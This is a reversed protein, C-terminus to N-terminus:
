LNTGNLQIEKQKRSDNVAPSSFIWTWNDWHRCSKTVRYLLLYGGIILSSCLLAKSYCKHWAQLKFDLKKLHCCDHPFLLTSKLPLTLYEPCFFVKFLKKDRGAAIPLFCFFVKTSFFYTCHGCPDGSHFVMIVRLSVHECSECVVVKLM